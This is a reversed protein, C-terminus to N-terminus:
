VPPTMTELRQALSAPQSQATAAPALNAWAYAAFTLVASAALCYVAPQLVRDAARTEMLYFLMLALAMTDVTAHRGLLETARVMGSRVARPLVHAAALTLLYVLKLGPLLVALIALTVAVATDGRAQLALLAQLVSPGGSAAATNALRVVPLALGLAFASVALGVLAAFVPGHPSVPPRAVGADPRRWTYALAMVLVAGAFCYAGAATHQLLVERRAILVGITALAVLDQPWWRGLWALARLPAESRAADIWPLLALAVLYLLKLLPLFIALVLIAGGLFVEHSGSRVLAHVASILSHEQAGHGILVLTSLRMFPLHFALTLLVAAALVASALLFRRGGPTLRAALTAVASLFRDGLM